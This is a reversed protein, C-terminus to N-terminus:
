LDHFFGVFEGVDRDSEGNLYKFQYLQEFASVFRDDAILDAPRPGADARIDVFCLVSVAFRIENGLQLDGQFFGVFRTVPEQQQCLGVGDGFVLVVTPFVEAPFDPNSQDGRDVGGLYIEPIKDM